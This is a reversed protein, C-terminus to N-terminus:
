PAIRVRPTRPTRGQSTEEWARRRSAEAGGAGLVGAGRPVTGATGATNRVAPDAAARRLRRRVVPYLALHVLAAGASNLVVADVDGTQGPVSMRAVEVALSLAATALVTRVFSATRPGLAGSALPLLAGLPALLLLQGGLTSFAEAPGGAWVSRVTAFLTVNPPEVWPVARPRLTLWGVALLYGALLLRGATRLRVAARGTPRHRQM